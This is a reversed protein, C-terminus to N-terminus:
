REYVLDDMQRDTEAIAQQIDTQAGGTKGVLEQHLAMMQEVSAVQPQPKSQQRM